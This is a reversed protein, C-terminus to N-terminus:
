RSRGSSALFAHAKDIGEHKALDATSKGSSQTEQMELARLHSSSLGCSTVYRELSTKTQELLSRVDATTGSLDGSESLFGEVEQATSQATLQSMHEDLVRLQDSASVISDAANQVKAIAYNMKRIGQRLEQIEADLAKEEEATHSLDVDKSISDVSVAPPLHLVNRSCWLEFKDFNRDSLEVMIQLYRDVATKVRDMTLDPHGPHLKTYLPEDLADVASHIYDQIMNCIDGLLKAPEVGFYKTERSWDISRGASSGAGHSEQAM